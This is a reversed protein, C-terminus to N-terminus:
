DNYYRYFVHHGIRGIQYLDRSWSPTVYTAHYHTAGETLGRYQGYMMISFAVLQAQQWAQEDQPTDSKGDCYWSFQCQHRVMNGNQDQRGQKVVECITDPYRSSSVRNLVVDSVAYQGAMNDSRSEYYVNLALCELEQYVNEISSDPTAPATASVGSIGMTSLIAIYMVIKKMVARETKIVPVHYGIKFLRDLL